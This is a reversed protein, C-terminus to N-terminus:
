SSGAAIRTVRPQRAPLPDPRPGAQGARVAGLRRAVGHAATWPLSLGDPEVVVLRVGDQNLWRHLHSLETLSGAPGATGDTLPVEAVERLHEVTVRPDLGAAAVGAAALRGHRIVHIEWGRQPTPRAAVLEACRALMRNRHAAAVAEALTHLTDRRQRARDYDGRAASQAAQGLLAEGAPAFDQELSDRVTDVLVLYEQRTVSGDCPALCHGLEGALCATGSPRSSLRQTCSRIPFALQLAEVVRSAAGRTPLPGLYTAGALADPGVRAVVSLRPFPEDTLKVWTQHEPFRSRRNYPPKHQALLRSERVAAELATSCEMATVSAALGVMEAMRSRKESATFYSRVRDRVAHSTGIYLPRGQRDLFQYVGPRNPLGDAMSRKRRQAASVRVTLAALEEVTGVGIDGVRGILYHLVDVTARADALARHCPVTASDALRALTALKHNPVEDPLLAARAVRATDVVQPQPWALGHRACAGRLFGTDYPANHAVLVAGAAFDLFSEVAYPVGPAAAVAADTIGTLAVILPPISIGPNVLTQFEGLVDGGRVKVAGIETIEGSAPAGGTTELDVM